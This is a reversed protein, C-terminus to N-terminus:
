IFPNGERKLFQINSDIKYCRNEFDAIQKEGLNFWEGKLKYEFDLERRFREYEKHLSKEVKYANNTQYTSKIQLQYPFGTQLCRLRNEVNKSVGIKCLNLLDSHILYIYNSCM